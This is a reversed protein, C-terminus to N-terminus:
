ECKIVMRMLQNALDMKMKLMSMLIRMKDRRVKMLLSKLSQKFTQLTATEM